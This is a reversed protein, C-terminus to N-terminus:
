NAKNIDMRFRPRATGILQRKRRVWVLGALRAM